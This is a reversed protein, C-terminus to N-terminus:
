LPPSGAFMPSALGVALRLARRNFAAVTVRLPLGPFRREAEAMATALFSRGRGQGALDPRMGGGVDVALEPYDGGPVRADESFCINGCLEGEGDLISLYGGALTSTTSGATRSRTASRIPHRIDGPPSSARM